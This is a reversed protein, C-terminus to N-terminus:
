GEVELTFIGGTHKSWLLKVTVTNSWERMYRHVGKSLGRRGQYERKMTETRSSDYLVRTTWDPIVVRTETPVGGM